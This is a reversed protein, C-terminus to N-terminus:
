RSRTARRPSRGDARARKGRAEGSRRSSAAQVAPPLLDLTLATAGEEALVVAREVVNELERVNGPWAYSLLAALADPAVGELQKSNERNYKLLFHDILDAIDESRERLPPLAIQVVHLRYYLDERFARAKVAKELDRNTAAIVRVDVQLARTGGVREFEREQLVRLLKVQLHPAVEGIEDLFLTGGDALEFRGPKQYHAGTFSGKEHGFLESELLDQSLSACSVAVFPKTRRPSNRHIARAIVEKGTGSEGRLLVNARSRAVKEALAIVQQWGESRGVIGVFDGTRTREKAGNRATPAELARTRGALAKDVIAKMDDIEFPKPLYDYAGLKIADVATKITGYATIMVVPMQACHSRVYSLLDIGSVKRMVVDAILLDIPREQLLGLAEEGNHSVLV